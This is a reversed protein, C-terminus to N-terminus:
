ARIYLKRWLNIRKFRKRNTLPRTILITIVTVNHTHEMVAAHYIIAYTVSLGVVSDSGVVAASVLSSNVREQTHVIDRNSEM